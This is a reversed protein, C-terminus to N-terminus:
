FGGQHTPGASQPQIMSFDFSSTEVSKSAGPRNTRPAGPSEVSVTYRQLPTLYKRNKEPIELSVVYWPTLPHKIDHPKITPVHTIVDLGLAEQYFRVSAELNVCEITGHTM